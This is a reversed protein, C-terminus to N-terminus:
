TAVRPRVTFVGDVELTGFVISTATFRYRHLGDVVPTFKGMWVGEGQSTPTVSSAAGEATAEPEVHLTVTAPEILGGPQLVSAIVNPSTGGTLGAPDISILPHNRKRTMHGAFRVKIPSVPWPGGFCLVGGPGVNRLAEFAEQVDLATADWPVLNAVQGRHTLDVTGGTPSGSPTLTQVEDVLFQAWLEAQTGVTIVEPDHGIM